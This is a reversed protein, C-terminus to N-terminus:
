ARSRAVGLEIVWGLWCIVLWAGDADVDEVIDLTTGRYWEVHPLWKM